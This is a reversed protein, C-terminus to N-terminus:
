FASGEPVGAKRRRARDSAWQEPLYLQYAIPLSAEENAIAL